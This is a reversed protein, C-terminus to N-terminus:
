SRRLWTEESDDGTAALEDFASAKFLPLVKWLVFRISHGPSATFIWYDDHVNNSNDAQSIQTKFRENFLGILCDHPIESRLCVHESSSFLNGIFNACFYLEHPTFTSVNSLCFM